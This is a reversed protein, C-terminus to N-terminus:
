INLVEAARDGWAPTFHFNALGIGICLYAPDHFPRHIGTLECGELPSVIERQRSGRRVLARDIRIAGAMEFYGTGRLREPVSHEFDIGVTDHADM